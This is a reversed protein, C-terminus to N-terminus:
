DDERGEWVRRVEEGWGFLAVGVVTGGGGAVMTGAGGAVMTEAEGAVVSCASQQDEVGALCGSGVVGDETWLVTSVWVVVEEEAGV